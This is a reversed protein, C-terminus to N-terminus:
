AMWWNKAETRLIVATLAAQALVYSTEQDFELMLVEGASTGLQYAKDYAVYNLLLSILGTLVGGMGLGVSWVWINM